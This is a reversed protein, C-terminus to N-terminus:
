AERPPSFWVYQPRMCHVDTKSTKWHKIRVLCKDHLQFPLCLLLNLSLVLYEIPRLLNIPRAYFTWAADRHRSPTNTILCNTQIILLIQYHSVYIVALSQYWNGHSLVRSTTFACYELFLVLTDEVLFSINQKPFFIKKIWFVNPEFVRGKIRVDQVCKIDVKHLNFKKTRSEPPGSFMCHIKCYDYNSVPYSDVHNIMDITVLCLCVDTRFRLSSPVILTM